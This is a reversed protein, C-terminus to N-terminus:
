PPVSDMSIGVASMRCTHLGSDELDEARVESVRPSRNDGSTLASVLSWFNPVGELGAEKAMGTTLLTCEAPHNLAPPVSM